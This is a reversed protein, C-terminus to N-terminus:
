PHLTWWQSPTRCGPSTSLRRGPGDPCKWRRRRGPRNCTSYNLGWGCQRSTSPLRHRPGHPYLSPTRIWERGRGVDTSGRGGRCPGSSRGYLLSREPDRPEPHHESPPPRSTSTDSTFLSRVPRSSRSHVRALSLPTDKSPPGTPVCVTPTASGVGPRRGTRTPTATSPTTTRASPGPRRDPAPGPRHSRDRGTSARVGEPPGGPTPVLPDGLAPDTPFVHRRHPAAVTTSTTTPRSSPVSPVPPRTSPGRPHDGRSCCHAGARVSWDDRGQNADKDGRRGEGKGRGRHGPPTARSRRDPAPVGRRPGGTADGM